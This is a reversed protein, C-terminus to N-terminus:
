RKRIEPLLETEPQSDCQRYLFIGMTILFINHTIMYVNNEMIGYVAYVSLILILRYRELRYLKWLLLLFCVTFLLYVVIGYRILLTMYSNDLFLQETIGALKREEKSVYAMQGLWKIGYKELIKHGESFRFSLLRDIRVLLPCKSLQICSLVVSIFNAAAAGGVSFLAFLRQVRRHRDSLQLFLAGSVLLSLCLVASQSNPVLYVFFVCAFYVMIELLKLCRKRALYICCATWQFIRLGLQNPHSFGLSHRLGDGRYMTYNEILGLFYMLMVLPVCIQLIRKALRILQEYEAEKTSVIFMWTSVISLRKSNFASVLLVITVAVILLLETRTYRQLGSIQVILMSTVLLNAFSNITDKPIGGVSEITTNFLIEVSFWVAFIILLWDQKKSTIGSVYM